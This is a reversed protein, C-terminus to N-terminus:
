LSDKWSSVLEGDRHVLKATSWVISLNSNSPLKFDGDVKNGNYPFLLTIFIYFM